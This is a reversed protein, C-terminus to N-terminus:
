AARRKISRALCVAGCGIVVGLTDIWVDRVQGSRGAVFLQITEDTLAALIGGLLVQPLKEATKGRWLTLEAGLLAFESAHALKRLVGDGSMTPGGSLFWLLRNLLEKVWQSIAGSVSAPLLSNGWIFCLTLGVALPWVWRRSQRNEM